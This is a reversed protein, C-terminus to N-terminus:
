LKSIACSEQQHDVRWLIMGFREWHKERFVGNVARQNIYDKIIARVEQTMNVYISFFDELSSVVDAVPLEEDRFEECVQLSPNYGSVYLYNLPYFIDFGPLPINGGVILRWLEERLPVSRRGAYECLFCWKRSCENMKLLTEPDRVGPTLSAIVLDFGGALGETVPDIKEWERDLFHVNDLGEAEVRRRLVKLMTPAPELAVVRRVERAFPITLVGAGAGIDLVEMDPHIAEHQELWALVKGARKRSSDGDARRGFQEALRNWYDLSNIRTVRKKYFSAEYVERWVQEWFDPNWVKEAFEPNKFDLKEPAAM